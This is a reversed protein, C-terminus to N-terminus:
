LRGHRGLSCMAFTSTFPAKLSHKFHPAALLTTLHDSLIVALTVMTLSSPSDRFVVINEPSIFDHMSPTCSDEYLLFSNAEGAFRNVTSLRRPM